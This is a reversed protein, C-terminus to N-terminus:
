EAEDIEALRRRAQPELHDPLGLALAREFAARAAARDQRADMELRGLTFAAIAARPDDTTREAAAARRLHRIAADVDGRRRAADARRLTLGLEDSPDDEFAPPAPAESREIVAEAAAIPAPDIPPAVEAIDERAVFVSEGATLRRVRDPVREGRVIVVGREVSVHVGEDSRAVTFVTGVVEVTVLGSEIVWRRPGGPKVSFRATGRALLTSFRTPGNEITELRAGEELEIRSGDDLEVVPENMVAPASGDERKLATPAGAAREENPWNVFAIAAAAALAVVGGAIPLTRSRRADRRERIHGWMRSIQAEDTPSDLLSKLPENM